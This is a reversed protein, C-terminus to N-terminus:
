ERPLDILIFDEPPFDAHQIAGTKCVQVCHGCSNCRFQNTIKPLSNPTPRYFVAVPCNEVCLGCKSCQERHFRIKRGPM